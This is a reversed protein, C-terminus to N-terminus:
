GNGVRKLLSITLNQRDIEILDNMILMDLNHESYLRHIVKDFLLKNEIHDSGNKYHDRIKVIYQEFLLQIAKDTQRTTNGCRKGRKIISTDLLTSRTLYAEISDRGKNIAIERDSPIPLLSSLGSLATSLTKMKVSVVKFRHEEDWLKLRKIIDRNRTIREKNRYKKKYSLETQIQAKLKDIRTTITISM